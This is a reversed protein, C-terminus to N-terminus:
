VVLRESGMIVWVLGLWQQADGDRQRRIGDIGMLNTLQPQGWIGECWRGMWVLQSWLQQTTSLNLSSSAKSLCISPIFLTFEVIPKHNKFCPDFYKCFHWWRNKLKPFCNKFDITFVPKPNFLNVFVSMKVSIKVVQLLLM